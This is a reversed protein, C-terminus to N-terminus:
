RVSGCIWNKMRQPHKGRVQVWLPCKHCVKSTDVKHLPCILGADARPIQPM